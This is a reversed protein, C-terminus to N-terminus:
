KGVVVDGIGVVDFCEEVGEGVVFCGVIELVEIEIEDVFVVVDGVVGCWM